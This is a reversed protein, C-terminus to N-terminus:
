FATWISQIPAIHASIKGAQGGKAYVTDNGNTGFLFDQQDTGVIPPRPLPIDGGGGVVIGSFHTLGDHEVGGNPLHPNQIRNLKSM